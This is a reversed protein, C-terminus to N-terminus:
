PQPASFDAPSFQSTSVRSHQRPASSPPASDATSFRRHQTPPASQIGTGMQPTGHGMAPQTSQSNQGNFVYSCLLKTMLSIM